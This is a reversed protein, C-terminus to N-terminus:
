DFSSVPVGRSRSGMTSPPWRTRDALEAEASWCAGRTPKMARTPPRAVRVAGTAAAQGLRVRHHRAETRWCGAQGSQCVSSGQDPGAGCRLRAFLGERARYEPSAQWRRAAPWRSGAVCGWAPLVPQGKPPVARHRPDRGDGLIRRLGHPIAAHLTELLLEVQEISDLSYDLAIGAAARAHDVASEAYAAMMDAVTPRPEM